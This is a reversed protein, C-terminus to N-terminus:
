SYLRSSPDLIKEEKKLDLIQKDDGLNGKRATKRKSESGSKKDNKAKKDKREQEFM